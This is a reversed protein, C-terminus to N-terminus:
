SNLHIEVIINQNNDRNVYYLHKIGNNSILNLNIICLMKAFFRKKEERKKKIIPFCFFIPIDMKMKKTTSNPSGEDFYFRHSPVM